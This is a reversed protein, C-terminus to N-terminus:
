DESYKASYKDTECVTVSKLKIYNPLREKLEKFIYFAINESTPNLEKDFPPLTSLDQHDLRSIVEETTERLNSFDIGIGIDNLKDTKVEVIVTWNHGHTRACAGEHGRVTHSASFETKITLTFM